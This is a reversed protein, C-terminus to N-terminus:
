GFLHGVHAERAGERVTTGTGLSRPFTLLSTFRLEKGVFGAQYTQKYNGKPREPPLSRRQEAWSMTEQRGGQGREGKRAVGGVLIWPAKKKLSFSCSLIAFIYIIGWANLCITRGKKFQM